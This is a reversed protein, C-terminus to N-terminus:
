LGKNDRGNEFADKEKGKGVVPSSSEDLYLNNQVIYEEVEAPLLYRV